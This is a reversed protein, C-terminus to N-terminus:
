SFFQVDIDRSDQDRPGRDGGFTPVPEGVALSQV